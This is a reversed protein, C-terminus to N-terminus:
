RELGPSSVEFIYEQDIPDLEDLPADILRSFAECDEVTVGEPRDIFIRLYWQAGEKVYKVDWISLGLEGAYPKAFEWVVSATNGKKAAM